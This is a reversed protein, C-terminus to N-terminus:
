KMRSVYEWNVYLKMRSIRLLGVIENKYRVLEQTWRTRRWSQWWYVHTCTCLSGGITNMRHLGLAPFSGYGRPPPSLLPSRLGQRSSAINTPCNISAHTRPLGGNKGVGVQKSIVHIHVFCVLGSSIQLNLEHHCQVSQPKSYWLYSFSVQATYTSYLLFFVLWMWNNQKDGIIYSWHAYHLSIQRYM